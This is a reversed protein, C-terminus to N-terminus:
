VPPQDPDGEVPQLRLSGRHPEAQTVVHRMLFARKEIQWQEVTLDHPVADTRRKRKRASRVTRTPRTRRARNAVMNGLIPSRM